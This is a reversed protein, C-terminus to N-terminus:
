YLSKVNPPSIKYLDPVIDVNKKIKDEIQHIFKANISKNM